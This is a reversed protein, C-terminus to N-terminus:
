GWVAAIRAPNFTFEDSDEVVLGLVPLHTEAADESIETLV